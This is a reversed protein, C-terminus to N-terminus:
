GGYGTPRPQVPCLGSGSPAAQDMRSGMEWTQPLILDPLGPGDGAELVKGGVELRM